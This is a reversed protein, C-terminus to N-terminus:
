TSGFIYKDLIIDGIVLINCNQFKDIIEDLHNKILGSGATPNYILLVKNAKM